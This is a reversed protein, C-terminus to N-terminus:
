SKKNLLSIPLLKVKYTMASIFSNKLEYMKTSFGIVISLSFFFFFEFIVFFILPKKREEVFFLYLPSQNHSVLLKKILLYLIFLYPNKNEKLDIIILTLM